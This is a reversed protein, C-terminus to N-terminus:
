WKRQFFPCTQTHGYRRTLPIIILCAVEKSTQGNTYKSAYQDMYKQYDGGMSGAGQMYKQYDGSYQKMYHQYDGGKSGAGQM